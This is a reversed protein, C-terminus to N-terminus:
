EESDERDRGYVWSPLEDIDLIADSTVGFVERMRLILDSKLERTGNEYSAYSQQSIGLKGAVEAQSMNRATRILRLNNTAM